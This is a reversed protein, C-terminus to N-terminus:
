SKSVDEILIKNETFKTFDGHQNGTLIAHLTKIFNTKCHQSEHNTTLKFLDDVGNKIHDSQHMKLNKNKQPLLLFSHKRISDDFRNFDNLKFCSPLMEELKSVDEM